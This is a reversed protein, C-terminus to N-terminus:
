YPMEPPNIMVAWVFGNKKGKTITCIVAVYYFVLIKKCVEYANEIKTYNLLNWVTLGPHGSDSGCVRQGIAIRCSIRAAKHKQKQLQLSRQRLVSLTRRSGQKRANGSVKATTFQETKPSRQYNINMATVCQLRCCRTFLTRTSDYACPRRLISGYRPCCKGRQGKLLPAVPASTGKWWLHLLLCIKPTRLIKGLNGCM